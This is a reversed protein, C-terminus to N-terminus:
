RGLRMMDINNLAGRQVVIVARNHPAAVLLEPQQLFLKQDRGGRCLGGFSGLDQCTLYTPNPRFCKPSRTLEVLCKTETEQLDDDESTSNWRKMLGACPM